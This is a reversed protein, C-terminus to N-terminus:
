RGIHQYSNQNVPRQKQAVLHEKQPAYIDVYDINSLAKLQYIDKTNKKDFVTSNCLTLHYRELDCLENEHPNLFPLQFIKDQNQPIDVFVETPSFIIYSDNGADEYANQYVFGDYGEKYLFRVMRQYILSERLCEESLDTGKASLIQFLQGLFLEKKVEKIDTRNPEFFIFDYEKPLPEQFMFNLFNIKNHWMMEACAAEQTDFEDHEPYPHNYLHAFIGQGHKKMLLYHFIIDQYAEKTHSCFEPIRLPNKMKLYIPLIKYDAVWDNKKIKRQFSWSYYLYRLRDFAAKKTGFHSLPLFADNQAITGRYLLLPNQEKDKLFLRSLTENELIFKATLAHREPCVGGREFWSKMYRVEIDTELM